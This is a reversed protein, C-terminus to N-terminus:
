RFSLSHQGMWTNRCVFRSVENGGTCTPQAAVAEPQESALAATTEVDVENLASSAVSQPPLAWLGAAVVAIAVASLSVRGKTASALRAAGDKGLGRLYVARQQRAIQKYDLFSAM